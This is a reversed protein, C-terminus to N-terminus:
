RVSCGRRQQICERNLDLLTDKLRFDSRKLRIRVTIFNAVDPYTQDLLAFGSIPEPSPADKYYAIEKPSVRKVSVSRPDGGPPEVHDAQGDAPCGVFTVRQQLAESSTPISYAIVVACLFSLRLTTRFSASM